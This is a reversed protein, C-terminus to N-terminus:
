GFFSIVCRKTYCFVTNKVSDNGKLEKRRKTQQMVVKDDKRLACNLKWKWKKFAQGQLIFPFVFFFNERM